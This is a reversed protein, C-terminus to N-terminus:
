QNVSRVESPESIVLEQWKLFESYNRIYDEAEYDRDCLV